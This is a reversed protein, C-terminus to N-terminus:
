GFTFSIDTLIALINLTIWTIVIMMTTTTKLVVFTTWFNQLVPKKNGFELSMSIPYWISTNKKEGPAVGGM